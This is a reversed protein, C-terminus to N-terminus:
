RLCAEETVFDTQPRSSFEHQALIVTGVPIRFQEFFVGVKFLRIKFICEPFSAHSNNNGHRDPIGPNNGVPKFSLKKEAIQLACGNWKRWCIKQNNAFLCTGSCSNFDFLSFFSDDRFRIEESKMTVTFLLVF